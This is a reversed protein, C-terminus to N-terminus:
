STKAQHSPTAQTSIIPLCGNPLASAAKAKPSCQLTSMEEKSVASKSKLRLTTSPAENPPQIRRVEGPSPPDVGPRIVAEKPVNSSAGLSMPLCVNLKVELKSNSKASSSPRCREPVAAKPPQPKGGNRRISSARISFVPLKQLTLAARAVPSRRPVSQEEGESVVKRELPQKTISSPLVEGQGPGPVVPTHCSLKGNAQFSEMRRLPNVDTDLDENRRLLKADIDIGETCHLSKAGAELHRNRHLSKVDANLGGSMFQAATLRRKRGNPRVGAYPRSRSAVRAKRALVTPRPERTLLSRAMSLENTKSLLRPLCEQVNDVSSPDISSAIPSTHVINMRGGTDKDSQEIRAMKTPSSTHLAKVALTTAQSVLVRDEQMKKNPLLAPVKDSAPLSPMLTSKSSPANTHPSSRLPPKSPEPEGTHDSREASMLYQPRLPGSTMLVEQFTCPCPGAKLTHYREQCDELLLYYEKDRPVNWYYDAFEKDLDCKISAQLRRLTAQLIAEIDDLTTRAKRRSDRPPLKDNSSSQARENDRRPSQPTHPM